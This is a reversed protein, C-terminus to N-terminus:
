RCSSSANDAAPQVHTLAPVVSSSALGRSECQLVSTTPPRTGREFQKSLRTRSRARITPIVVAGNEAVVADFCTL